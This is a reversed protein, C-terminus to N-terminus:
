NVSIPELRLQVTASAGIEIERARSRARWLKDITEFSRDVPLFGALVHYKGPALPGSSWDGSPGTQGIIMGAAFAAESTASAPAVIIDADSVPSGRADEVRASVRGGDRALVIRLTALSTASGPRLLGHLISLGDYTVDKLYTGAPASRVAVVYADGLFPFSLRYPLSASFFMFPRNSAFTAFLLTFQSPTTPAPASRDWAIEVPVLIPRQATARVGDADRDTITVSEVGFAARGDSPEPSKRCVALAATASFSAAGDLDSVALKYEGPHLGCIRFRGEPDTTGSAPYVPATTLEAARRAITNDLMASNFGSIPQTESIELRLAESGAASQAIDEVCFSPSRLIEIDAFERAEGPALILPLAAELVATGPYYTTALMPERLQPDAPADSISELKDREKKALLLYGRGPPVRSFDYEGKENTSARSAYVYSLEGFSYERGVLYVAVGPLPKKDDGTIRGSLRAFNPLRFDVSTLEQGARLIVVKVVEPSPSAKAYIRVQGAALGRLTYHGRSDTTSSVSGPSSASITVNPM